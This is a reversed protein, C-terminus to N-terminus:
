EANDKELNLLQELKEENDIVTIVKDISTLKIIAKIEDRPEFLILHTDTKAFTKSAAIFISLGHSSSFTLRSLDVILYKNEIKINNFHTKLKQYDNLTCMKGILSFGTKDCKKFSTIEM